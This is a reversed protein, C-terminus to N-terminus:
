PAGIKRRMLLSAIFIAVMTMSSTFGPIGSSEGTTDDSLPKSTADLPNTAAALEDSDSVGDGDDDEDNYNCVGDNDTDVPFSSQNDISTNCEIELVDTWMDGDMDLEEAACEVGNFFLSEHAIRPDRPVITLAYNDNLVYNITLNGCPFQYDDFLKGRTTGNEAFPGGIEYECFGATGQLSDGSLSGGSVHKSIGNGSSENHATTSGLGCMGELGLVRFGWENVIYVYGTTGQASYSLSTAHHWQYQFEISLNGTNNDLLTLTLWDEKL